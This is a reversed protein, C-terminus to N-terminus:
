GRAPAGAVVELRYTITRSPDYNQIQVTYRGPRTNIVNASVNPRKGPQAGGRVVEQGNPGYVIFGANKLLGADDPSVQLNITYVSGDGPYGFEVKAFTGGPGLTGAAPGPVAPRAPLPTNTPLRTPLSTRTTVPEADEPPPRVPPPARDQSPTPELTPTATVSGVPTPTRTPRTDAPRTPAAPAPAAASLLPTASPIPTNEAATTAEPAAPQVIRVAPAATPFAPRRAAVFMSALGLAYMSLTALFLM